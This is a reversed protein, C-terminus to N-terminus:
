WVHIKIQHMFPETIKEGIVGNVTLVVTKELRRYEMNVRVQRLRPEYKEISKKLEHAFTNSNISRGQIKRKYYVSQFIEDGSSSLVGKDENFNEFRYNKFVFGFEPDSECSGCPTSVLLELFQRIAMSVDQERVLGSASTLRIPISISMLLFDPSLLM